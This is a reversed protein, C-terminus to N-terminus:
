LYNKVIKYYWEIQLCKLCKILLNNLHIIVSLPNTDWVITHDINEDRRHRTKIPAYQNHFTLQPGKLM